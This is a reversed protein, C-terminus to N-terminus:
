EINGKPPLVHAVVTDPSANKVAECYPLYDDIFFDIKNEAIYHAKIRARQSLSEAACLKLHTYGSILLDHLKEEVQSKQTGPGVATIIHVQHGLARLSRFLAEFVRPKQTITGSFDFGFKMLVGQVGAPGAHHDGQRQGQPRLLVACRSASVLGAQLAHALPLEGADVSPTAGQSKKKSEPM